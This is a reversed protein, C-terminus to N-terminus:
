DGTNSDSYKVRVTVVQVAQYGGGLLLWELEGGCNQQGDYGDRYHSEGSRVQGGVDLSVLDCFSCPFSSGNACDQSMLFFVAGIAAVAEFRGPPVVGVAGVAFAGQGCLLRVSGPPAALPPILCFRLM